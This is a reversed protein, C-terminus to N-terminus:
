PMGATKQNVSIDFEIILGQVGTGCFTASKSLMVTVYEAM